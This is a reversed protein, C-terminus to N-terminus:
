AFNLNAGMPAEIKDLREALRRYTDPDDFGGILYDVRPTFALWEDERFARIERSHEVGDRMMDHFAAVDMSKRAVGIVLFNDALCGTCTLHFLAPMLKRKTLDGSAGFIVVVCPEGHPLVSHQKEEPTGAM